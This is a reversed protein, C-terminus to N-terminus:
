LDNLRLYTAQTLCVRFCYREIDDLLIISLKSKYADDFVQADGPLSVWFGSVEDGLRGLGAGAGSRTCVKAIASCKATESMGVMADSTIQRGLRWGM